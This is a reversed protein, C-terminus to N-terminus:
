ENPPSFQFGTIGDGESKYRQWQSIDFRRQIDNASIWEGAAALSAASGCDATNMLNNLKMEKVTCVSSFPSWPDILGTESTSEKRTYILPSTAEPQETVNVWKATKKETQASCFIDPASIEGAAAKYESTTSMTFCRPLRLRPRTWLRWLALSGVDKKM